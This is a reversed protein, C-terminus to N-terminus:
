ISTMNLFSHSGDDPTAFTEAAPALVEVQLTPDWDLTDGAHVVRYTAGKNAALERLRPYSAPMGKATAPYGHDVLQGAQFNELLWEAGGLHDGHVHSILMGDIRTRGRAQVFPAITDRGANYDPASDRGTRVGGTDILFLKGSPTELAVALSAGTEFWTITLQPRAPAAAAAVPAGFSLPLLLGFALPTLLHRGPLKM